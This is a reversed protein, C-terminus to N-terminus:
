QVARSKLLICSHAPVRWGNQGSLQPTGHGGYKSDESSWLPVWEASMNREAESWDLKCREFTEPAAPDPLTEQLARDAAVSPFQGMFEIRGDRVLKALDPQHDAFYHFPTTAGFEQGQFLMPTGPMLLTLATVARAQGPHALLQFRLGSDSNAVQDHNQIFTVFAAPPLDLGPTGRPAGQHFYMEGQLLYGHKACSIFEQPSGGHDEYYAEARGTLAVMASHHFDDNWLGDLGFGGQDTPRVLRTHQPENEAVIIISRSGAAM